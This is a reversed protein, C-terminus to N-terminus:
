KNRYILWSGVRPSDVEFYVEFPSDKKIEIFSSVYINNNRQRIVNGKNVITPVQNGSYTVRLEFPSKYDTTISITDNDDRYYLEKNRHVYLGSGCTVIEEWKTGYLEKRLMEAQFENYCCIQVNNLRSFDLEGDVLFEQQREDFTDHSNIYIERAKIKTPDKVIKFCRSFDKQMNGNSYYCIDPMVSLLEEIDFIFFVPLPCKPLWLKLAKEYYDSDEIDKGLCENYFQTPSKPVFYFRAFRHAKSTRHVNSGASNSFNGDAYNRSQLKMSRIIKIANEMHTFHYAKPHCPFRSVFELINAQKALPFDSIDITNNFARNRVLATWNWKDVYKEVLSKSFLIDESNSAISWDIYDSFLELIRNTIVFDNKRCIIGWDVYDKYKDLFAEDLVEPHNSKSIVRWDVKDVYDDLYRLMAKRRSLCKWNITDNPVAKLIGANIPFEKLSTILNWDVQNKITENDVISKVLKEDAWVTQHTKSLFSWNLDCDIHERLFKTTPVFSGFSTVKQWDWPYDTREEVLQLTPKIIRKEILRNFNYEAHPNIKIIQEIDVDERESLATFDIYKRYAEVIENLKQKDTVCFLKSSQSIYKWDVNEKFKSIFWREDILSEFHSLLSYNWHYREDSLLKLVDDHWAKEKIGLRQNYKLSADVIASSSIVNWDVINRCEELDRFVNFDKHQCFYDIDWWYSHRRITDKILTKLEKFSYQATLATWATKRFELEKINSLIAALQDLYNYDFRNEETVIRPLLIKWDWYNSFKELNDHIFEEGIHGSLYSWDWKDVFLKNGLNELKLKQFMRETLVTWDWPFKNEIYSSKVFDIDAIESFATWADEDDGIMLQINPISQLFKSDRQNSLVTKWDLKTGFLLFLQLDSLLDNNASIANWDWQYNIADALIDIDKIQSSVQTLGEKTIVNASYRDFFEKTWVIHPNCEFGTMYPTSSWSLLENEILLDVVQNSWIYDKNNFISSSLVGGNKSADKVIKRFSTSRTFKQSWISDKFIRDFLTALCLHEGLVGINELIFELNFEREIKKWDWRKNINHLISYRVDVTDQTYRALNVKVIDLHSLIFQEPLRKGLEEWNWEDDTEKQQLILQEIVIIKRGVDESLVDLDWPYKKFNDILFKDNIRQTLIPWNLNDINQDIRALLVEIDCYRSINRWCSPNAMNVIVDFLQCDTWVTRSDKTLKEYDVLDLYRELAKYDLIASKNDWLKQFLCELVVSEKKDSNLRELLLLSAREAVRDGNMIVPMYQMGIKFLSVPVRKTEIDYYKQLEAYYINSGEISQLALRKKLQSNKHYIISEIESDNPWIKKKTILKTSIGMDQYFPFMLLSAAIKAKLKYHEYLEQTGEYFSYHKGEVVSIKGLETLFVDDKDINILHEAEVRSLIDEFIKIEAVDCYVEHEGDIDSDSMSFGLFNGLTKKDYRKEKTLNIISCIVFSMDDLPEETFYAVNCIYKKLGWKTSASYVFESSCIKDILESM